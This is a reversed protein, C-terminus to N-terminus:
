DLRVCSPPSGGGLLWDYVAKMQQAARPWAFREEVLRYGRAGMGQRQDNTMAFLSELAVRLSDASPEAGIAAGAALGEPLNCQRTMLVPRGHAWAELVVMPLGEDQSPLVLADTSQFAALKAEGFLPGLFCISRTLGAGRVREELEREHGFQGWGVIVLAWDNSGPAKRRVAAAWADILFHIGKKKNLRGVYLLIKRGADFNGAWPAPAKPQASPPPPLYTGNPIQCVANRLGMRRFFRYEGDSLAHLCAAGRLHAGQYTWLALRKKGFSHRLEWETLMGHPSVVYPRRTQAAWLSCARVHYRWLGHCHTLDPQREILASTLQPSRGWAAPFTRLDLPKWLPRDQDDFADALALVHVALGGQPAQTLALSLCRAAEAVGAMRRSAKYLIQAARMAYFSDMRATACFSRFGAMPTRHLASAGM